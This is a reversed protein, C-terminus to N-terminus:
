LPILEIVTGTDIYYLYTDAPDAVNHKPLDDEPSAYVAEVCKHLQKRVVTSFNQHIFEIKQVM